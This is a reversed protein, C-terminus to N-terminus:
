EGGTRAEWLKGAVVVGQLCWEVPMLTAQSEWNEETSYFTKHHDFHGLDAGDLATAVLRHSSFM